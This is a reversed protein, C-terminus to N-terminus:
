QEMDDTEDSMDIGESVRPAHESGMCWHLVAAFESSTFVVLSGAVVEFRALEPVFWVDFLEDGEGMWREVFVREV